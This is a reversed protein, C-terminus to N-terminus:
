LLRCVVTIRCFLLTTMFDYFCHINKLPDSHSLIKEPSKTALKITVFFGTAIGQMVTVGVNQADDESSSAHLM